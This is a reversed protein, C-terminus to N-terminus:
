SCCCLVMSTVGLRQAIATVRLAQCHRQAIATVELAQMLRVPHLHRDVLVTWTCQPYQLPEMLGFGPWAYSMSLSGHLLPWILFLSVPVPPRSLVLAEMVGGPNEAHQALGKRFGKQLWIGSRCVADVVDVREEHLTQPFPHSM